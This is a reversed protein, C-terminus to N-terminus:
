RQERAPRRRHNGCSLVAMPGFLKGFCNCCLYATFPHRNDSDPVFEQVKHTAQRGCKCKEGTLFYDGAITTSNVSRTIDLQIWGSDM